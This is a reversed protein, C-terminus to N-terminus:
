ARDRWDEGCCGDFGLLCAVNGLVNAKAGLSPRENTRGRDCVDPNRSPMRAPADLIRRSCTKQHSFPDKIPLSLTRVDIDQMRGFELHLNSPMRVLEAKLLM